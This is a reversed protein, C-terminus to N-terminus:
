LDAPPPPPPPPPPPSSPPGVGFQQLLESAEELQSKNFSLEAETMGLHKRRKNEAIQAQVAAQNALNRERLKLLKLEHHEVAQEDDRRIQRALADRQEREAAQRAEKARIQAGLEARNAQRQKRRAEEKSREEKAAAKMRQERYAELQVAEKQLQQKRQEALREVVKNAQSEPQPVVLQTASSHYALAEQRPPHPHPHPHPRDEMKEIQLHGRLLQQTHKNEEMM